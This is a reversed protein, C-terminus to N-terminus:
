LGIEEFLLLERNRSRDCGAFKDAQFLKEYKKLFQSALFRFKM